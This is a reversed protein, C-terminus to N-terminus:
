RSRTRGARRARPAAAHARCGGQQRDDGGELLAAQTTLVCAVLDVRLAGGMLVLIRRQRNAVVPGGPLNQDFAVGPAGGVIDNGRESERPRVEEVRLILVPDQAWLDDRHVVVDVLVALAQELLDAQRRLIEPGAAGVPPAAEGPLDPVRTAHQVPERLKACGDCCPLGDVEDFALLVGVPERVVGPHRGGAVELTRGLVALARLPAAVVGFLQATGVHRDDRVVVRGPERVRPRDGSGEVTDGSLHSESPRRDVCRLRVDAIM